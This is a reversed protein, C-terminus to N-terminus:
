DIKYHSDHNLDEGEVILDDFFLFLFLFFYKVFKELVLMRLIYM